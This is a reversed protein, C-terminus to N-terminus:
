SPGFGLFPTQVLKCENSPDIKCQNLILELGHLSKVQEQTPLHRYSFNGVIRVLLVKIGRVGMTLQETHGGQSADQLMMLCIPIINATCLAERTHEAAHICESVDGLIELLTLLSEALIEDQNGSQMERYIRTVLAILFLCSPVSLFCTGLDLPRKREKRVIEAALRLLALQTDSISIRAGELSEDSNACLVLFELHGKELLSQHFYVSCGEM